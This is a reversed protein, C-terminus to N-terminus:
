LLLSTTVLAGARDCGIRLRAGRSIKGAVIEAALPSEVLREFARRLPRAGLSRDPELRLVQSVVTEDIEYAIGREALLRRSSDVAIRDVIAALEKETLPGYCLVEDIRNWLEPPLRSRALAVITSTAPARNRRYCESGLNSTMVIAASSFDVIRGRGDTLRGDELVQLLVM